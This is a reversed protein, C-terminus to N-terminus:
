QSFFWSTPNEIPEGRGLLEFGKVSRIIWWVVSFLLILFGILIPATIIGIVSYLLGIWFTRIQWQYHTYLWDPASKKNMYAMILGVIAVFGLLVSVFYLIYVTKASDASAHQQRELVSDHKDRESPTEYPNNM